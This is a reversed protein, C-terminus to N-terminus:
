HSDRLSPNAPFNPPLVIQVASAFVWLVPDHELIWVVPSQMRERFLQKSHCSLLLLVNSPLSLLASDVPLPFIKPCRGAQNGLHPLLPAGCFRFRSFPHRYSYGASHVCVIKETVVSRAKNRKFSHGFKQARRLPVDHSEIRRDICGEGKISQCNAQGVSALFIIMGGDWLQHVVKGAAFTRKM